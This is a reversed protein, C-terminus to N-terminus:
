ASSPMRTACKHSTNLRTSKRDEAVRDPQAFADRACLAFQNGAHIRVINRVRLAERALDLVQLLMGVADREARLQQDDIGLPPRDLAALCRLSVLRDSRFLTTSPFPSDTRTSAPPRRAM